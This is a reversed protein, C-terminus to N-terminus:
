DGMEFSDLDFLEKNAGIQIEFDALAAQAFAVQRRPPPLPLGRPALRLSAVPDEHGFCTNLPALEALPAANAPGIESRAKAGSGSARGARSTQRYEVRGGLATSRSGSGSHM